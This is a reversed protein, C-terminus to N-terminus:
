EFMTEILTRGFAEASNKAAFRRAADPDFGPVQKHRAIEEMAAAIMEPRESDVTMGLGETRVIEGLLGYASSLVPKEAAASRVIVASMGVHRQYLTLVVDSAEFYPYIENDPVFQDILIIQMSSQRRLGEISIKLRESLASNVPGVMLLSIREADGVHINGCAELLQFVGKRESIVGFLLFVIRNPDIELAERILTPSSKGGGHLDVPDPLAVAKQSPPMANIVKPVFPDLCFLRQLSPARLALRLILEQRLARVRDRLTPSYASLASYHFTPRFYIGSLDCGPSFGIALPLLLHDIYMALCHDPETRAIAHQMLRWQLWARRTLSGAGQFREFLEPDLAVPRVDFSCSEHAAGYVESGESMMSPPVALYLTGHGAHNCAYRLFHLIYGAHHGSNSPDFVLLSKRTRRPGKAM